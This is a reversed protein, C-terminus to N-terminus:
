ENAPAAPTNMTSQTLTATAVPELEWGQPNTGVITFCGVRISERPQFRPGCPVCFMRYRNEWFRDNIRHFAATGQHMHFPWRGLVDDADRVVQLYSNVEGQDFFEAPPKWCDNLRCVVYLKGDALVAVQPHFAAQQGDGAAFHWVEAAGSDELRQLVQEQAKESMRNFWPVYRQAQAHIEALPDPRLAMREARDMNRQHSWAAWLGAGTLVIGVVIAVGTAVRLLGAKDLDASEDSATGAPHEVVPGRAAFCSCAPLVVFVLALLSGCTDWPYGTYILVAPLNAGSVVGLAGVLYLGFLRRPRCVFAGLTVALAALASVFLVPLGHGRWSNCGRWLKNEVTGPSALFMTRGLETVRSWVNAIFLDPAELVLRVYEKSLRDYAEASYSLPKGALLEAHAVGIEDEWAINYPNSIMGLSLYLSFANGHRPMELRHMPIHYVHAYVMLVALRVLVLQGGLLLVLMAVRAAAGRFFRRTGTRGSWSPWLLVLRWGALVLGLAALMGLPIIQTAERIMPSFSIMLGLALLSAWGIKGLRPQLGLALFLLCQFATLAGWARFEYGVNTAFVGVMLLHIGLTVGVAVRLPVPPLCGALVTLVLAAYLIRMVDSPGLCPNSGTLWHTLVTQVSLLFDIGYDGKYVLYSYIQQPATEPNDREGVYIHFPYGRNCAQFTSPRGAPLLPVQPGTGLIIHGLVSFVLLCRSIRERISM